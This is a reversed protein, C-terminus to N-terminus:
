AEQLKHSFRLIIFEAPRVAAIGIEVIMRGELIDQTNMTKGLGVNVFFAQGPTPGALAGQQWLGYLYSDIMAKVKLWTGTDNAEFVAFATAKQVSEEILNFLRRVSIYRWENDNGALTRGGWVLIGKGTFPRIANISKGAVADVNLNAQEEHTIRDAPSSVGLVSVNAPTKWVGNIRDVRAYVGAMAPSPPLTLRKQSMALRVQNYLTTGKDLSNLPTKNIIKSAGGSGSNAAALVVTDKPGISMGATLYELEFGFDDVQNGWAAIIEGVPIPSTKIIINLAGPIAANNADKKLEFLVPSSQFGVKLIEVTPADAPGDYRVNLFHPSSSPKRIRTLFTKDDPPDVQLLTPTTATTFDTHITDSFINTDDKGTVLFLKFDGKPNHIEWAAAIAKATVGKPTTAGADTTGDPLLIALNETTTDFTIISEDPAGPQKVTISITPADSGTYVVSLAPDNDAGLLSKVTNATIIVGEPNTAPPILQFGGQDRWADTIAKATASAVAKEDFPLQINLKGEVSTDFTIGGSATKDKESVTVDPDTATGTYNVTIGPGLDGTFKQVLALPQEPLPEMDGTGRASLSFGEKRAPSVKAFEGLITAVPISDEQIKITLKDTAITFEVKASINVDKIIEVKPPTGAANTSENDVQLFATPVPNTGTSLKGNLTLRFKNAETLRAGGGTTMSTDIDIGSGTPELSFGGKPETAWAQLITSVPTLDKKVTIKLLGEEFTQFVVDSTLDRNQTIMVEPKAAAGIYSVKLNNNGVDTSLETSFVVPETSPEAPTNDTVKVNKELFKYAILTNLYPTYAAGYKLFETESRITNRFDPAAEKRVDMITFRDKLKQCQALAQNAVNCYAEMSSLNVADPFLLLTPEDVLEIANLGAVLEDAEFKAQNYRSASVIYCPGGGNEFYHKLAYYLIFKSDPDSITTKPGDVTVLFDAQHEVGFFLEYEVMSTIRKTVVGTLAAGKEDQAKETYGIFAPIATAVEAVSPPLTSIEEVYVGPTKYTAM